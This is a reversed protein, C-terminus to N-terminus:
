RRIRPVRNDGMSELTDKLERTAEAQSETAKAGTTLATLLRETMSLDHDHGAKLDLRWQERMEKIEKLLRQRDYVLAAIILGALGLRGLESHILENM